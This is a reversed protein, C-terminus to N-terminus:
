LLPELAEAVKVSEGAGMKYLDEYPILGLNILTSRIYFKNKLKPESLLEKVKNGIPAALKGVNQM